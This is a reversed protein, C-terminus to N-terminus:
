FTASCRFAENKKAKAPFFVSANTRTYDIESCVQTCKQVRFSSSKRLNYRKSCDYHTALLQTM